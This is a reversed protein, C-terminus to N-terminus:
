GRRPPVKTRPTPTAKRAPSPPSTSSADTVASTAKMFLVPEAPIAMGFEEAHDRYNLGVCVLKGIQGVCAGMRPEDCVLPLSEIPLRRLRELGQPTLATGAINSVHASLDRL